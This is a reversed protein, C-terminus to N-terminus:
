LKISVFLGHVVTSFCRKSAVGLVFAAYVSCLQTFLTFQAFQWVCIFRSRCPTGRSPDPHVEVEGLVQVAVEPDEEAVDEGGEVPRLASSVPTLPTM